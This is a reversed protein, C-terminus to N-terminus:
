RRGLAMLLAAIDARNASAASSGLSTSTANLIAQEHYQKVLEAELERILRQRLADRLWGAVNKSRGRQLNEITGPLAGVARAVNKLARSKNNSRASEFNILMKVLDSAESTEALANSM